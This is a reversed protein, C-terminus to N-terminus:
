LSHHSSAQQRQTGGTSGAQQVSGTSGAQQRQVSGASRAQPRCGAALKGPETGSRSPAAASTTGGTHMLPTHRCTLVPSM